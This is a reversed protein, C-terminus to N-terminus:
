RSAYNGNSYNEYSMQFKIENGVIGVRKWGMKEYFIEARTNPGTTLTVDDKTQAFYWELMVNHLGKGIGQKEHKPDVFLAWINGKILDVIAFGVIKNDVECVWGKGDTTLIKEEGEKTVLEPSNLINEKVAMRVIMYNDIDNITAERIKMQETKDPEPVSAPLTM